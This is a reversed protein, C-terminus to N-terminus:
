ADGDGTLPISSQRPYETVPPEDTWTPPNPIGNGRMEVGIPRVIAPQEGAALVKVLKKMPASFPTEKLYTLALKHAAFWGEKRGQERGHKEGGKFYVNYRRELEKESVGVWQGILYGVGLALALLLLTTSPTM